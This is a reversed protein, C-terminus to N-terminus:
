GNRSFTGPVSWTRKGACGSEDTDCCLFIHREIEPIGLKEAKKRSKSAVRSGTSKSAM